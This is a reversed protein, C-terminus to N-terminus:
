HHHKADVSDHEIGLDGHHEHEEVASGIYLASLM